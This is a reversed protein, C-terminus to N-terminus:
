TMLTSQNIDAEFTTVHQLNEKTLKFLTSLKYLSPIFTSMYETFSALNCEIPQLLHPSLM